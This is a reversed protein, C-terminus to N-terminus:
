RVPPEHGGWLGRPFSCHLASTAAPARCGGLIDWRCGSTLLATGLPPGPFPPGWGPDALAASGPPAFQAQAGQLAGDGTPPTKWAGAPVPCGLERSAIAPGLAVGVRRGLLLRPPWRGCSQGRSVGDALRLRSGRRLLVHIEEIHRVLPHGPLDRVPVWMGGLGM